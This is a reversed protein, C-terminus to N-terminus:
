MNEILVFAVAFFDIFKQMYENAVLNLLYENISTLYFSLLLYIYKYSYLLETIPEKRGGLQVFGAIMKLEKQEKVIM